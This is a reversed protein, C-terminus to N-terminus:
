ESDPKAGENTKIVQQVDKTEPTRNAFAFLPGDPGDNPRKRSEVEKLRKRRRVAAQRREIKLLQPDERSVKRLKGNEPWNCPIHWFGPKARKVTRAIVPWWHLLLACKRFFKWNSWQSEFFIVVFGLEILALREHPINKMQTNGSVVVKGGDAAFRRLWPVDNKPIYDHAGPRPTYDAASKVEFNGTVKRLQRENAFTQFVRVMVIPVNEDFAIKL